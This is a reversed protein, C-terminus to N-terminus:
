APQKQVFEIVRGPTRDLAELERYAQQTESQIFARVEGSTEFVHWGDPDAIVLDSVDGVGKITPAGSQERFIHHVGDKLSSAKSPVQQEKISPVATFDIMVKYFRPSVSADASVLYIEKLSNLSADDAGVNRQNHDSLLSTKIIISGPPPGEEPKPEGAKPEIYYQTLVPFTQGYKQAVKECFQRVPEDGMIKEYEALGRQVYDAIEDETADDPIHFEEIVQEIGQRVNETTVRDRKYNENKDAINTLLKGFRGKPKEPIHELLDKLEQLYRMHCIYGGITDLSSFHRFNADLKFKCPDEKGGHPGADYEAAEIAISQVKFASLSRPLKYVIQRASNAGQDQQKM